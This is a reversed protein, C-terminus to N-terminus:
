IRVGTIAVTAVQTDYEDTLRITYSATRKGSKECTTEATLIKGKVPNLYTIQSTASVTLQGTINAAVAFTFDALTFLVGGMVGGAANMHKEEVILQCKAYDEEVAEITIGTIATAFIDKQFQKRAKELLDVSM